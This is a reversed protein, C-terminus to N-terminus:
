RRNGNKERRKNEKIRNDLYQDKMKKLELEVEEMSIELKEAIILIEYSLIQNKLVDKKTIMLEKLVEKLTAKETIKGGAKLRTIQQKIALFTRGLEESMEEMTKINYNKILYENEEKTYYTKHKEKHIKGTKKLYIIRQQISIFTRNLKESLKEVPYKDHHEILYKDESEIWIKNRM